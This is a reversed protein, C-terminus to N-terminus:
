QPNQEFYTRGLNLIEWWGSQMALVLATCTM